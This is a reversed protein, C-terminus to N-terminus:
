IKTTNFCQITPCKGVTKCGSAEANSEIEAIMRTKASRKAM